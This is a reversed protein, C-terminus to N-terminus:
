FTTITPDHYVEEQKCPQDEYKRGAFDWNGGRMEIVSDTAPASTDQFHNVSKSKILLPKPHTITTGFVRSSQGTLNELKDKIEQQTKIKTITNPYSIFFADSINM